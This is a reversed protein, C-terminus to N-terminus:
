ALGLNVLEPSHGFLSSSRDMAGILNFWQFVRHEQRMVHAASAAERLRLNLSEDKWTAWTKPNGFRECQLTMEAWFHFKPVFAIQARAMHQLCRQCNDKLSQLSAVSLVDVEARTVELWTHM